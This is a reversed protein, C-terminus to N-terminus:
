ASLSYLLRAELVGCPARPESGYSLARLISVWWHCTVPLMIRVM